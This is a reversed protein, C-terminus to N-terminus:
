HSNKHNFDNPSPTPVCYAGSHARLAHLHRVEKRVKAAEVRDYKEQDETKFLMSSARGEVMFRAQALSSVLFFLCVVLHRHRRYSVYGWIGGM